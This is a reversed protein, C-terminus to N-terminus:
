PTVPTVAAVADMVEAMTVEVSEPTLQTRSGGRHQDTVDVGDVAFARVPNHNTEVFGVEVRQDLVPLLHRRVLLELVQHWNDPHAIGHADWYDLLSDPEDGDNFGWKSLLSEADLRLTPEATM